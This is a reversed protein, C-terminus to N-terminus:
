IFKVPKSPLTLCRSYYLSANKPVDAGMPLSLTDRVFLGWDVRHVAYVLFAAESDTVLCNAVRNNADVFDYTDFPFMAMLGILHVVPMLRRAFSGDSSMSGFITAGLHQCDWVAQNRLNATAATDAVTKSPDAHALKLENPDVIEPEMKSEAYTSNFDQPTFPDLEGRQAKLDDISIGILSLLSTATAAFHLPGKAVSQSLAPFVRPQNKYHVAIAALVDPMGPVQLLADLIIKEDFAGDASRFPAALLSQAAKCLTMKEDAPPKPNLVAVDLSVDPKRKKSPSGKEKKPSGKKQETAAPPSAGPAPAQTSQSTTATPSGRPDTRRPSPASMPDPTQVMRPPRPANNVSQVPEIVALPPSTHQINAGNLSTPQPAPDIAVGHEAVSPYDQTNWPTVPRDLEGFNLASENSTLSSATPSHGVFTYGSADTFAQPQKQADSLGYFIQRNPNLFSNFLQQDSQPQPRAFPLIAPLGFVRQQSM